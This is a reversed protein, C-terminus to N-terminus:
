KKNLLKDCGVARYVPKMDVKNNAYRVKVELIKKLGPEQVKRGGDM